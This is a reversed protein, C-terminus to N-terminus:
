RKLEEVVQALEAVTPNEYFARPPVEADWLTAIDATIQTAMLSHGGLEFFDDDAGIGDIEMLDGWMLALAREVEGEPARYDSGLDPRDRNVDKRLEARDVKGNLTLPLAMLRVFAAPVMYPPLTGALGRRLEPVSLGHDAVYFAVLRRGMREHEQAVVAADTIEPRALLAAEIEGPEIRFGRIKVQNDARGLFEVVGDARRRVLDGTRYLLRGPADPDPRFREATQEPRGLYGLAVGDGGAHLEGPEEGTVPRGQEDLIHIRTGTVPVGIPVTDTDLPETMVHCCTFTTNETPGYGNIVRIGPLMALAKNVHAVSLVDGGALLQRVGSLRHLPGDVMQHFLGATLWMVTVGENEVTEALQDLGPDHAPFVALRAGNLLPAWIELTSADFAVPAFQLVADEPGVTLFNPETVLRLVARHPVVVGKPTGTSGSTYAIYAPREPDGPLGLDTAPREALTADPRDLLVPNEALGALLREQTLLVTAGADTLITRHREYPQKPDLAVYAGGAKLVALLAVIVEPSREACVAVNSGPAVGRERLLHALRNARANLEAYGVREAGRSLATADPTLAVRREFLEHVSQANGSRAPAGADATTTM